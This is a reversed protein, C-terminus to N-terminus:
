VDQGNSSIVYLLSLIVTHIGTYRYRVSLKLLIIVAKICDVCSCNCFIIVADHLKDWKRSSDKLPVNSIVCLLIDSMIRYRYWIVLPSSFWSVLRNRRIHSIGNIVSYDRFKTSSCVTNITYIFPFTVSPDLSNIKFCYINKCFTITLLFFNWGAHWSSINTKM